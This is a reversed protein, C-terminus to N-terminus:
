FSQPIAHSKSAEATGGYAGMNIRGGHPFPEDGLPSTPDGADICPSTVEDIVWDEGIPDWRGAQSKLHYDGEVLFDDNPDDPTGNPDWYGPDAFLPDVDINGEGPWGGEINSYTVSTRAKVQDTAIYIEDGGDRLITNTIAAFGGLNSLTSLSAVARGRVSENAWFTSRSIHPRGDLSFYVGGGGEAARNCVFLCNELNATAGEWYAGGQGRASNGVFLCNVMNMGWCKVAGGNQASNRIFVSNRIDHIGGSLDVAGGDEEAYNDEFTCGDIVGGFAGGAGRHCGTGIAAGGKAANRLFRCDTIDPVSCIAFVAGCTESANNAFTCDRISPGSVAVYLASAGNASSITFGDLVPSFFVSSGSGIIRVIGSSNDTRNPDTLLDRAHAVPADNGELDGSLTSRFRNVDRWDPFEARFGAYGGVLAVADTLLFTAERDGPAVSAGQDPKYIGRAVRIEVPKDGSEADGLADQLYRYPTKWSLGDGVGNADDDVYIVRAQATTCVVAALLAQLVIRRM